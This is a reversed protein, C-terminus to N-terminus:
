SGLMSLAIDATRAAAGPTGLRHRVSQLKARVQKLKEPDKLLATATRAIEAPNAADQILEPVVREGAIINVLGIHDVNVLARGLHYSVPSIRYIIIMPVGFIATELTVTGSAALILDSQEFIDQVTGSALTIPCSSLYPQVFAAMWERDVGPAVSIQFGMDPLADAAAARIRTAAALMVPLNKEIEGYRSGPLLGVAAGSKKEESQPESPEQYYDLLPHGVFTASVNRRRYYEAEFPLIVAMQDVYQRIKQIRGSRWAWIQPSIYYLVPVGQKHAHRAIHLNFDPFDILIVLAPREQRLMRKIGSVASLVKPLKAFVETIGVVSLEHADMILELGEAALREGGIGSFSLSPDKERMARVLHAGHCDGSTEGAIVLIRNSTRRTPKM